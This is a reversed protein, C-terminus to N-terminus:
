SDSRPPSGSPFESRRKSVSKPDPKRDTSGLLYLGGWGALATLSAVLLMWLTQNPPPMIMTLDYLFNAPLM